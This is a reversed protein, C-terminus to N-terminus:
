NFKPRNPSPTSTRFSTLVNESPSNAPRTYGFDNYLLLDLDLSRAGWHETRIRGFKREIALLTALLAQPTMEAQLIAAGNLYDPQPPGVAKTQYWSSTVELIIGPTQALTEMAATLISSRDGLNSGLAIASTNM